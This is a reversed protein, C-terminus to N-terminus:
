LPRFMKRHRSKRPLCIKESRVAHRPHCVPAPSLFLLRAESGDGPITLGKRVNEKALRMYAFLTKLTGDPDPLSYIGKASGPYLLRSDITKVKPLLSRVALLYMCRQLESGGNITLSEVNGPFRGTKYDTVRARKGDADLDVRDIRGGIQIGLETV